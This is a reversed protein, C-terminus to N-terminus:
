KTNSPTPSSKAPMPRSYIQKVLAAEGKGVPPPSELKKKEPAILDVLETAAQMEKLTDPSVGTPLKTSPPDPIVAAIDSITEGILDADQKKVQAQQQGEVDPAEGEVM